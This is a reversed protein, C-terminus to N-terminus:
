AGVGAGKRLGNANRLPDRPLHPPFLVWIPVDATEGGLARGARPAGSLNLRSPRQKQFSIEQWSFLCAWAPLECGGLEGASGNPPPNLHHPMALWLEALVSSDRCIAPATHKLLENHIPFIPYLGRETDLPLEQVLNFLM